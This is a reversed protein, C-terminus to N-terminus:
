GGTCTIWLDVSFPNLAAPRAGAGRAGNASRGVQGFSPKSSYLSIFTKSVVHGASPAHQQASPTGAGEVTNCPTEIVFIASTVRM